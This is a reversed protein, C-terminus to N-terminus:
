KNGVGCYNTFDCEYPTMCHNGMALTPEQNEFVLKFDDIRQQVQEIRPSVDATVDIITCLSNEEKSRLILNFSNLNKGFRKKCITYQIALDSRIADNIEANMKVEYIDIKEGNKVLIDCMVLVDDEIISAEYIVTESKSEILYKTYSNFFFFDGVKEKVNIGGPFKEQRVLDEFNHGKSFLAQKEPSIPNRDMRKFKDLFLSKVCQNGRVFSSKSLKWTENILISKGSSQRAIAEKIKYSLNGMMSLMGFENGQYDKLKNYAKFLHDLACTYDGIEFALEGLQMSGKDIYKMYDGM